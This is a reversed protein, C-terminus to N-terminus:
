QRRNHESAAHAAWIACIPMTVFLGLGFTALM